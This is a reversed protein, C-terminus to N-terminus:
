DNAAASQSLRSALEELGCRAMYDGLRALVEPDIDRVTPQQILERELARGERSLKYEAEAEDLRGLQRLAEARYYRTTRDVPYLELARNYAELADNWDSNRAALWGRSRWFRDDQDSAGPAHSMLELVADVDSREIVSGLAYALLSQNKPYETLLDAIMQRSEYQMQRLMAAQEERVSPVSGDLGRAAHIALAVRVKEDDMRNRLWSQCTTAANALRLNGSLVYYVYTETTACSFRASDRALGILQPHDLMVAYYFMLRQRAVCNNADADILQRCVEAGLHPEGLPGFALEVLDNFWDANEQDNVDLEQILRATARADRLFRASRIGSVIFEREAEAIEVLELVAPVVQEDSRAQEAHRIRSKLHQIRWIKWLPSAMAVLAAVTIFALIIRSRRSVIM